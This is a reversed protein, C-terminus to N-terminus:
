TGSELATLAVAVEEGPKDKTALLRRVESMCDPCLEYITEDIVLRYWGGPLPPNTHIGGIDVYRSCPAGSRYDRGDCDVRTLAPIHEIM